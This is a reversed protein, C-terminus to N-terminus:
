SRSRRTAAGLTQLASHFAAAPPRSRKLGLDLGRLAELSRELDAASRTTRIRRILWAPMGLRGAVADDDLGRERLETVHLARRLNAALFAVLRIPPEGAALMAAVARHAGAGDGRALADAVAEVAAQQGICAVAEVHSPEITTGAGVHLSVKDLESALGSLDLTTREVLLDLAAPRIAHGLERALREGWARLARADTVRPCAVVAGQREFATRLTRRADLARAVLVLCAPPRIRGAAELVLAEERGGLAEARRIVLAPAGGFLLPSELDGLADALSGGADDAWRTRVDEVGARRLRDKIVALARDVLLSEEGVLLWAPRDPAKALAAM